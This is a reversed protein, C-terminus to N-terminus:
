CLLMVLLHFMAVVEVIFKIILEVQHLATQILCPTYSYHLPLANLLLTYGVCYFCTILLLIFM